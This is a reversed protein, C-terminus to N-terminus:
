AKGSDDSTGSHWRALNYNVTKAIKPLHNLKVGFVDFLDLSSLSGEDYAELVWRTLKPGARDKAISGAPRAFHATKAVAVPKELANRSPKNYIGLLRVTESNDMRKLASARVVSASNSVGFHGATKEVTAQVSDESRINKEWSELFAQEPMLTIAAIRNCRAEIGTKDTSRSPFEIRSIGSNGNALHAIEHILTFLRRERSDSANLAVVPALRDLLACGSFGDEVKHHPGSNASQMVFIGLTKESNQIWEKLGKKPKKGAWIRRRLWEAVDEDPSAATFKGLWDLSAANENGRENENLFERLWQQRQMVLRLFRSMNPTLVKDGNRRFDRIERPDFGHEKAIDLPLYLFSKPISYSKALERIAAVTPRRTGSEWARLDAGGDKRNHLSAIKSVADEITPYGAVERSWALTEPNVPALIQAM